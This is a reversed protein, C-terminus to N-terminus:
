VAAAKTDIKRTMRVIMIAGVTDVILDKATDVHYLKTGVPYGAIDFYYEFLEWIIGVMIVGFIIVRGRNKSSFKLSNFLALVFLGIGVGGLFHMIIDYGSFTFYPGTLGFIHMALVIALVIWAYIYYIM